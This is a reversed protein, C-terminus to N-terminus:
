EVRIPVRALLNRQGGNRRIELRLNGPHTPLYEFDYTEGIAIYQSAQRLQREAEPFDFGDKALPRWQVTMTDTVGPM